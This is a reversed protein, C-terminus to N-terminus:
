HEVYWFYASLNRQIRVWIYSTDTRAIDIFSAPLSHRIQTPKTVDINGRVAMDAHEKKEKWLFSPVFTTVRILFTLPSILM